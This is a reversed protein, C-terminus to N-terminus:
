KLRVVSHFNIETFIYKRLLKIENQWTKGLVNTPFSDCSDEYGNCPSELM